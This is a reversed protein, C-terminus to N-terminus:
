LISLHSDFIITLISKAKGWKLKLLSKCASLFMHLYVFVIYKPFFKRTFKLRNKMLYTNVYDRNEKRHNYTGISRGEKHYVISEEAYAIVYGKEKGRFTWDIEEFYLFYDECMLGVDQLFRRSVLLSAGINYMMKKEVEERNIRDPLHKGGGIHKVEAVYKNYEAGGLAQVIAPESYFMLTSGCIGIKENDQMREVLKVLSDKIIVTDNNLFWIYEFDNREIAYRVGVNNGGAFGLNDGTQILILPPEDIEKLGGKEAEERTYEIYKIPKKM